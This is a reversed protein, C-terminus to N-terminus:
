SDLQIYIDGDSGGTPDATGSTINYYKANSDGTYGLTSLTLNGSTYVLDTENAYIDGRFYWDPSTVINRATWLVSGSNNRYLYYSNDNNVFRIGGGNNAANGTFVYSDTNGGNGVAMVYSDSGSLSSAIIKTDGSDDLFTVSSNTRAYLADATDETLVLDTENAYIDGRFIWDNNVASNQATWYDVGSVRRYLGIYDNTLGAFSPSGDGNYALGGGGGSEAQGVYVIGTGQSDGYLNLRSEGADDSKITVTTNTGADFTVNSDTRAYDSLDLNEDTLVKQVENVYVDGKFIWDESTVSNKATWSKVGNNNRYIALYDEGAGTLDSDANGDYNIGGGYTSSAGLYLRGVGDSTGIASIQSFGADSSQVTLSTSSGANIIANESDSLGGLDSLTLTRKEVDTVHGKSDSTVKSIVEAGTATQSQAAVTPHVYYNANTAGTYGLSSLTISVNGTLAQGNVTRTEPVGGLDYIDVEVVGTMGNFSSVASQAVSWKSVDFAEPGIPLNEIIPRYITGSVNVWETPSTYTHAADYNSVVGSESEAIIGTLTKKTVGTRTDFTLDNSNVFEAANDIDIGFNEVDSITPIAM